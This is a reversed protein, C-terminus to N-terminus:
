KDAYWLEMAHTLYKFRQEASPNSWKGSVILSRILFDFLTLHRRLVRKQRHPKIPNYHGLSYFFQFPNKRVWMYSGMELCLPIYVGKHQEVYQDYIYDWLDGHTTYAQPEIKYFHHPFTTRFNNFLAFAEPLHHFPKKTKAYPFWLQDQVGFGSHCDITVVCDSKFFSEKCFNLVALSEPELELGRYWPLKSSIKHGGPLFYKSTEPSDVPANRMLDVGNPNCRTFNYFGWPNIMPLFVIRIKTLAHKVIEDWLMLESFSRMLSLVVQSGIRELGHVGGFMGLVPASPDTSGFSMALM